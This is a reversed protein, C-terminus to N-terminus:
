VSYWPIAESRPRSLGLHKRHHDDHCQALVSCRMEIRGHIGAGGAPAGFYVWRPRGAEHRLEKLLEIDNDHPFWPVETGTVQRYLKRKKVAASLLAKSADATGADGM